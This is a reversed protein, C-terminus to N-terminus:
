ISHEQGEVIRSLVLVCMMGGHLVEIAPSLVQPRQYVNILIM